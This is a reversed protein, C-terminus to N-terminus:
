CGNDEWSTDASADIGQYQGSSFNGKIMQLRSKWFTQCEDASPERILIANVNTKFNGGEDDGQNSSKLFPVNFSLVHSVLSFSLGTYSQLYAASGGNTLAGYFTNGTTGGMRQDPTKGLEIWVPNFFGRISPSSTTLFAYKTKGAEIQADLNVNAGSQARASSFAVYQAVEVATFTYALAFFILFMGISIGIAFLFDFVLQGSQNSLPSFGAAM